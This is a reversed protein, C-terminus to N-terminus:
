QYHRFGFEVHYHITSADAEVVYNDWEKWMTLGIEIPLRTMHFLKIVEKAIVAPLAIDGNDVYIDIAYLSRDTIYNDDAKSGVVSTVMYPMEMDMPATMFAIAPSGNYDSLHLALVENTVLQEDLHAVVDFIM